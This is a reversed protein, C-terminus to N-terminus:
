TLCPSSPFKNPLFKKPLRPELLCNSTPSEVEINLDREYGRTGHLRRADPSHKPRVVVPVIEAGTQVWDNHVCWSLVAHYLYFFGIIVRVLRIFSLNRTMFVNAGGIYRLGEFSNREV